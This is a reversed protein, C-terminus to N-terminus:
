VDFDPRGDPILLVPRHLPQLLVALLITKENFLGKFEKKAIISLHKIIM